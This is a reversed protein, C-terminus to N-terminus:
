NGVIARQLREVLETGDSTKRVYGDAGSRAVAAALADESDGSFLLVRMTDPRARALLTALKEGAGDLMPHAVLVVDPQFTVLLSASGIPGRHTEVEVGRMNSLNIVVGGDRGAL